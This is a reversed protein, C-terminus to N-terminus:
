DERKVYLISLAMIDNTFNVTGFNVSNKIQARQFFLEIVSFIHCDVCLKSQVETLLQSPGFNCQYSSFKTKSFIFGNQM